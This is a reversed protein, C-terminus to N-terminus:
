ERSATTAKDPNVWAVEEKEDEFLATRINDGIDDVVSSGTLHAGISDGTFVSVVTNLLGVPTFMMALDVLTGVVTGFGTRSENSNASNAAITSQSETTQFASPNSTRYERLDRQTYGSGVGIGAVVNAYPQFVGNNDVYGPYNHRAQPQESQKSAVEEPRPEEEEEESAIQPTVDVFDPALLAAEMAQQGNVASIQETLASAMAAAEADVNAVTGTPEGLGAVDGAVDWTGISPEAVDAPASDFAIDPGFDSGGFDSGGFDGGADGGFDGGTDGGADGAACGCSCCGGGDDATYYSNKNSSDEIVIAKQSLASNLIAAGQESVAIDYQDAQIVPSGTLSFSQKEQVLQAIDIELEQGDVMLGVVVHGQANKSGLDVYLQADLGAENLLQALLISLDECDGGGGAITDQAFRWAAGGEDSFYDYNQIVYNIISEAKEADSLGDLELSQLIGQLVESNTDEMFVSLDHLEEGDSAQIINTFDLADNDLTTETNFGPYNGGLSTCTNM